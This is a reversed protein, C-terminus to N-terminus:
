TVTAAKPPLSNPLSAAPRVSVCNRRVLEDVVARARRPLKRQGASCRVSSKASIRVLIAARKEVKVNEKALTAEVREEEETTRKGVTVRETVVPRKEVEIQEESLPIRVTENGGVPGSAPQRSVAHREIM